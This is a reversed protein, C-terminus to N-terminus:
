RIACVCVCVCIVDDVNVVSVDSQFPINECYLLHSQVDRVGDLMCVCVRVHRVRLDM